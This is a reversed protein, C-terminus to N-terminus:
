EGGAQANSFDDAADNYGDFWDGPYVTRDMRMKGSYHDAVAQATSGDADESFAIYGRKYNATIDRCVECKGDTLAELEPLGCANCRLILTTM